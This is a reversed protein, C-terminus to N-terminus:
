RGTPSSFVSPTSSYLLQDLKLLSALLPAIASGRKKNQWKFVLPLGSALGFFKEGRRKAANGKRGVITM